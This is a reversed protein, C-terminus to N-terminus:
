RQRRAWIALVLYSGRIVRLATTRDDRWRDASPDEFFLAPVLRAYWRPYVVLSVGVLGTANTLWAYPRGGVACAAAITIGEARVATVAAPQRTAANTTDFAAAEIASLVREPALAGLAGFLALLGRLM